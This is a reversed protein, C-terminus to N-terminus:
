SAPIMANCLVNNSNVETREKTRLQNAPIHVNDESSPGTFLFVYNNVNPRDGNTEQLIVDNIHTLALGTSHGIAFEFHFHLSLKFM